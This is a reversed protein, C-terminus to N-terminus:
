PQPAEPADSEQAVPMPAALDVPLPGVALSNSTWTGFRPNVEVGIDDAIQVIEQQVANNRQEQTGFPVLDEGLRAVLWFTRVSDDIATAPVGQQLYATELQEPGGQQAELGARAQYVVSGEVTVNRRAAAEDILATILLRDLTAKTLGYSPQGKPQGSIESIRTLVQDVDADLQSATIQKDGVLAANTALDSGCGTLAAAAIASAALAIVRRAAPTRRMPSPPTTM